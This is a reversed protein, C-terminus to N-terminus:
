GDEAAQRLRDLILGFFGDHGDGLFSGQFPEKLSGRHTCEPLARRCERARRFHWGPHQGCSACMAFRWAFGPFWPYELSDPGVITCGIAHAFYGIHFLIGAPNMFRHEHASQIAIRQGRSTISAGCAACVITRESQVRKELDSVAGPDEAITVSSGRRLAFM